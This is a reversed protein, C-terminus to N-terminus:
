RVELIMKGRFWEPLDGNRMAGDDVSMSSLLQTKKSAHSYTVSLSLPALNKGM